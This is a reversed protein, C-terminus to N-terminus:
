LCNHERSFSRSATTSNPHHSLCNMIKFATITTPAIPADGIGTLIVDHCGYTMDDHVYSISDLGGICETSLTTCERQFGAHSDRVLRGLKGYCIFTLSWVLAIQTGFEHHGSLNCCIVSDIKMAGSANRPPNQLFIDKGIDAPPFVTLRTIVNKVM